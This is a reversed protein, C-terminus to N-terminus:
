LYVNEEDELGNPSRWNLQLCSAGSYDIYNQMKIKSTQNIRSMPQRQEKEHQQLVGTSWMSITCFQERINNINKKFFFGLYYFYFLYLKSTKGLITDKYKGSIIMTKKKM